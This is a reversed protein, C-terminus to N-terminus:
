ATYPGECGICHGKAEHRALAEVVTMGQVNVRAAVERAREMADEHTFRHEAIETKARESPLNEYHWLWDRGLVPADGSLDGRRVSWNGFGEHRVTVCWLAQDMCRITDPWISVKYAVPM